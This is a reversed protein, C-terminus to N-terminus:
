PKEEGFRQKMKSLTYEKVAQRAAQWEAEEEPTMEWPPIAGFEALWKAISEPDDAQNEEATGNLSHLAEPEVIVRCGDPWDAPGDLVVQGQKWTGKIANMIGGDGGM